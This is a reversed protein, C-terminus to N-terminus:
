VAQMAQEDNSEQATNQLNLTCKILSLLHEQSDSYLEGFLKVVQDMKVNAEDEFMAKKGTKLWTENVGYVTSILKIIRPNVIRVGKELSSIYGSSLYLNEAFKTQSMSLYQRVERVRTNISM